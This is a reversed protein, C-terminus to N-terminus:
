SEFKIYYIFRVSSDNANKPKGIFTNYEKALNGMIKTKEKTIDIEKEGGKIGERLTSLGPIMVFGVVGGEAIANLSMEIRELSGILGKISDVDIGKLTISLSDLDKRMDAVKKMMDKLREQDKELLAVTDLARPDNIEKLLFIINENRNYTDSLCRSLDDVSAKDKKISELSIRINDLIGETNKMGKSEREDRIEGAMQKLLKQQFDLIQDMQSISGTFRNITETLSPITPLSPIVLIQIPPLSVKDMDVEIWGSTKPQPMLTLSVSMNSGVTTKMGGDSFRLEKVKSASFSGNVIAIFPTYVEELSTGIKVYHSLKNELFFEIRLTGKKGIAGKYTTKKGNLFFRVDLIVPPQKTTEGRYYTDAFDTVKGSFKIKDSQFTVSGDGLIKRIDELGDGVDYVSYNGNGKVRIWDIVITKEIGRDPNMILYVTEDDSVYFGNARAYSSLFLFLSLLITSYKKM